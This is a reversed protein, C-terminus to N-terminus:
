NKLDLETSVSLKRSRNGGCRLTISNSFAANAYNEMALVLMAGYLKRRADYQIVVQHCKVDGGSAGVYIYGCPQGNLLGLYLRGNKQEREFVQNPYFSVAEANKRQLADIYFLMEPHQKVIVFDEMNLGKLFYKIIVETNRNSM